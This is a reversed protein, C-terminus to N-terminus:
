RRTPAVELDPARGPGELVVSGREWIEPVLWRDRGPVTVVHLKQGTGGGEAVVTWGPAGGGPIRIWVLGVFREGLPYKWKRPGLRVAEAGSIERVEGTMAQILPTEQLHPVPYSWPHDPPRGWIWPAAGSAEGTELVSADWKRLVRWDRGSVIASRGRPDGARLGRPGPELDLAFLVAGVPTPSAAEVAIVNTGPRMLDTVPIVELTFGPRNHGTAVLHGNVWLVFERDGCVKAVASRPRDTLKFRHVFVGALPRLQAVDDTVWMWSAEGTLHYLERRYQGRLLLSLLVIGAVVALAQLRFHRRMLVRSDGPSSDAVTNPRM